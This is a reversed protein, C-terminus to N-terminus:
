TPSWFWFATPKTALSAADLEGGGVLPATFRLIEPADAADGATASTAEPGSGDVVVSPPTTDAVADADASSSDSGGGCSATVAAMALAAGVTMARRMSTM